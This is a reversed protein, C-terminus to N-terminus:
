FIDMPSWISLLIQHTEVDATIETPEQASTLLLNCQGVNSLPDLGEETIEDSSHCKALKM